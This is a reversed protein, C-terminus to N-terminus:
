ATEADDAREFEGCHYRNLYGPRVDEWAAPTVQNFMAIYLLPCTPEQVCEACWIDSWCEYETGNAFARDPRARALEQEVTLLAV